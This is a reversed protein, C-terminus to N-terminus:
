GPDNKVAETVREVTEASMTNDKNLKFKCIIRSTAIRRLYPSSRSMMPRWEGDYSGSYYHVLLDGNADPLSVIKGLCPQGPIFHKEAVKIVVMENIELGSVDVKNTDQNVATNGENEPHQKSEEKEEMILNKIENNCQTAREESTRRESAEESMKDEYKLDIAGTKTIKAKM